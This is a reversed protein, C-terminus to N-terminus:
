TVRSGWKRSFHKGLLRPQAGPGGCRALNSIYFHNDRAVAEM